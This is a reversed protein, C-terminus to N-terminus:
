WAGENGGKLGVVSYYRPVLSNAAGQDVYELNETEGLRDWSSRPTDPRDAGYIRYSESESVAEWSLVVDAGRRRLALTRVPAAGLWEPITETRIPHEQLDEVADGFRADGEGECLPYVRLRLEIGDTTSDKLNTLAIGHAGYLSDDDDGYSPNTPISDDYGADDQLYAEKTQYLPSDPVFFAVALGGGDGTMVNWTLFSTGAEPDPIGDITLGDRNAPTFLTTQPRPLWDFYLWIRSLPHVRLTVIRQWFSKYVADYHITNVGSTAGRVYRLARIPGLIGGLFTSNTNWGEEDEFTEPLPQARGKVRDLLDAGDGCPPFVRYGTLLWRDLYDLEFSPTAVSGDPARNWSVYNEGSRELSPGRFLYVWRSPNSIGPRSDEARIEYRFNGADDPWPVQSPARVGADRFMFALEDNADLLGDDEGFVDYILQTFEFATGENFLKEIREDIQFPIPVYATSAPDYRFLGFESIPVLAFEALSSGTTLVPENDRPNPQEAPAAPTRIQALLPVGVGALVLLCSLVYAIQRPQFFVHGIFENRSM